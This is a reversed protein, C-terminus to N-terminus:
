GGNNTWREFSFGFFFFGEPSHWLLTPIPAEPVTRPPVPGSHQAIGVGADCDNGSSRSTVALTHEDETRPFLWNRTWLPRDTFTQQVSTSLTSESKLCHVLGQAEAPQATPWGSWEPLGVPSPRCCRHLHSVPSPQVLLLFATHPPKLFLTALVPTWLSQSSTPWPNPSM